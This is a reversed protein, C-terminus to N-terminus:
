RIRLRVRWEPHGPYAGYCFENDEFVFSTFKRSHVRTGDDLTLSFLEGAPKLHECGGRRFSHLAGFFFSFALRNKGSTLVIEKM